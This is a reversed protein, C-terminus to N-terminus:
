RRSKTTSWFSPANQALWRTGTRRISRSRLMVFFALDASTQDMTTRLSEKRAQSSTSAKRSTVSSVHENLYTNRKRLDPITKLRTQLMRSLGSPSKRPLCPAPPQHLPLSSTSCPRLIYLRRSPPLSIPCANTFTPFSCYSTHTIAARRLHLIITCTSWPCQRRSNFNKM